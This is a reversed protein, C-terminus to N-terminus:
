GSPAASASTPNSNKIVVPVQVEAQVEEVQEEIIKLADLPQRARALARRLEELENELQQTKEEALQRAKQLLWGNM